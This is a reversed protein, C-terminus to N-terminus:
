VKVAGEPCMEQCCYCRICRHYDFIPEKADPRTLLAHAPCVRVCIMCAKCLKSDLRPKKLFIDKLVRRALTPLNFDTNMTKPMKFDRLAPAQGTIRYDPILNHTRALYTTPTPYTLPLINEISEDLAFADKSMALMGLKRPRGSSPGDGDMGLIGDLVTISPKVLRHIDILISAFLARDQGARLHWKAKEYAHIFGFTNKVGLTLGMMTHTKLKPLNVVMDFDQPDQGFLFRRYPSIGNLSEKIINNNFAAIGLGLYRIVNMVGSSGLVKAQSGYGPSDGVFVHCLHDKLLEAIARVIAPHTTVAKEPTKASLLNPKLLVRADHPDWGIEQFSANLIGKLAEIDDYSDCPTIAVTEM